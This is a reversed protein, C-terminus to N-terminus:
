NESPKEAHDIVIFTEPVKQGPELLLGLEDELVKPLPPDFDPLCPSGHYGTINFSLNFEYRGALETKDVVLFRGLPCAALFAAFASVSTKGAVVFKTRGSGPGGRGGGGGEAPGVTLAEQAGTFEKLKLGSKAITLAYGASERKDRHVKLKFRDALLTQLMQRLQEMTASAPNEAKAEIQFSERPSAAWDPGGSIDGWSGGEGELIDYAAAILSVLPVHRGICRGLPVTGRVGVPSSLGGDIGQCRITGLLVGVAPQPDPKISAVEFQLPPPEITTSQQLLALHAEASRSWAIQESVSQSKM